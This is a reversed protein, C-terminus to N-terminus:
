TYGIFAVEPQAGFDKEVPKANSDKTATKEEMKSSKEAKASQCSIIKLTAATDTIQDTTM